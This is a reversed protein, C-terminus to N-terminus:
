ASAHRQHVLHPCRSPGCRWTPMAWKFTALYERFPDLRQVTGMGPDTTRRDSFLSIAADLDGHNFHEYVQSVLTQEDGMDSGEM